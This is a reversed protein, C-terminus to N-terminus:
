LGCRYCEFTELGTQKNVVYIAHMDERQQDTLPLSTAAVGENLWFYVSCVEMNRCIRIGAEQFADPNDKESYPMVALRISDERGVVEHLSESQSSEEPQYASWLMLAFFPLGLGIALWKGKAKKSPKSGVLVPM